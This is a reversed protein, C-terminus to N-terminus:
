AKKNKLKLVCWVLLGYGVYAYFVIAVLFLTVQGAVSTNVFNNMSKKKLGLM